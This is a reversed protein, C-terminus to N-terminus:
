HCVLHGVAATQCLKFCIQRRSSQLAAHSIFRLSEFYGKKQKGPTDAWGPHMSSFHIEKHQSAWRETLIVQQRQWFSLVFLGFCNLCALVTETWSEPVFLWGGKSQESCLGHHWWVDGEWVASRGREAEPHAHWRVVSDGPLLCCCIYMKVTLYLSYSQVACRYDAQEHKHEDKVKWFTNTSWSTQCSQRTEEPLIWGVVRSDEVKKLAPILATTLIYTGSFLPCCLLYNLSM